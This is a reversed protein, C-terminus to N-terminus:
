NSNNHRYLEVRPKLCGSSSESSIGLLYTPVVTNGKGIQLSGEQSKTPITTIENEIKVVDKHEVERFYSDV